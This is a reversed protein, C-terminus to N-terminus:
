QSRSHLALLRREEQESGGSSESIDKAIVTIFLNIWIFAFVGFIIYLDTQNDFM